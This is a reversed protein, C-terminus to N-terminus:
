FSHKKSLKSTGRKAAIELAFASLRIGEGDEADVSVDVTVSESKQREIRIRKKYTQGAVAGEDPITIEQVPESGNYSNYIAVDVTNPSRYEGLVLARRTRQWGSYGSAKIWPLRCGWAFPEDLDRYHERDTKHTVTGNPLVSVYHGRWSACDHARPENFISWARLLYDWVLVEGTDLLFRVHGVGPRTIVTTSLVSADNHDEVDAGIYQVQLSRDLMEFGRHSKFVLGGSFQTISRPDVCGVESSIPRTQTYGGGGQATPPSGLLVRISREGFLIVNADISGGGTLEEGAPMRTVLLGSWEIALRSSIPKSSWLSRRDDASVLFATQGDDWAYAPSPSPSNELVGGTTYLTPNDSVQADTIDVSVTVRDVSTDNDAVGTLYYPGGTVGVLGRFVLIKVNARLGLRYTPYDVNFRGSAALTVTEVASLGSYQENGDRDRWFYVALFEYDGAAMTGGGLATTSLAVTPSVHFDSESVEAGDYVSLVGAAINPTGNAFVVPRSGVASLDFAMEVLDMVVPDTAGTTVRDVATSVSRLAVIRLMGGGLDSARHAVVRDLSSPAGEQSLFRAVVSGSGAILFGTSVGSAVSPESYALFYHDGRYTVAESVPTANGLLVSAATAITGSPTLVAHYTTDADAILGWFTRMNAPEDTDPAGVVCGHIQSSTAATQVLAAAAHPSLASSYPRFYLEDNGASRAYYLYIDANTPNVSLWVARVSTASMSATTVSTGDANLVALKLESGPTTSQHVLVWRRQAAGALAPLGAAAMVTDTSAITVLDNSVITVTSGFAIDPTGVGTLPRYLVDASGVGGYYDTWAIGLITDDSVVVFPQHGNQSSTALNTEPLIVSGTEADLVVAVLANAVGVDADGGYVYVSIGGATAGDWSMINDTDNLNPSIVRMRTDIHHLPGKSVWAKSSPSLDFAERGDSVLLSEGFAGVMAGRQVSEGDLRRRSVARSGRRKRLDGPKEYYCDRLELMRGEPLLKDDVGEGIGGALPLDKIQAQLAM